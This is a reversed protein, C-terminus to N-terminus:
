RSPPSTVLFNSHDPSITLSFQPLLFPSSLHLELSISLSLSFSLILSLSLSLSLLSSPHFLTSPSLSLSTPSSLVIFSKLSAGLHCINLFLVQQKQIHKSNIIKYLPKRKQRNTYGRKERERERERM